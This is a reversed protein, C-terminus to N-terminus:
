GKLNHCYDLIYHVLLPVPRGTAAKNQGSKWATGAVDLHAWRMGETFRSLFCAATITGAGGEGLNAMDAINSKIMEQYDDWLPLAWVPDGSEQGSHELAQKLQTDTTMLGTAIGGLAVVVAGTLTAIDLVVAPNFRRSYTLADALILRGEADTNLIEVTQGSLTKVVDGPKTATGSPLNEVLPLIGVIPIPLKLRAITKITGLVSAAGAMDFKMEEMKASPKLSIGGSDFTVGKGVLAIPAQEKNTEPQYHIVVLKPPESSGKAVALFAGMKKVDEDDAELVQVNLNTEEQALQKAYQAIYSPTAHNSPMNALDKTLNVGAVLANAEEIASQAQTTEAHMYFCISQLAISERSKTKFTDLRYRQTAFQQIAMRIKWESTENKAPLGALDCCVSQITRTQVLSAVIGMMKQFHKIQTHTTDGWYICLIRDAKIGIPDHIMLTKGIEPTLDTKVLRSLQGQMKDDLLQGAQSLAYETFVPIIICDTIQIAPSQTTITYHM